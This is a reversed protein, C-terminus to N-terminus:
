VNFGGSLLFTLIGALIGGIVLRTIWTIGSQIETLSREINQSRVTESASHIELKTLRAEHADLRRHSQVIQDAHHTGFDTM